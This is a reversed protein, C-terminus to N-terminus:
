TELTAIVENVLALEDPSFLETHAERVPILDHHVFGLADTRKELRADGCRVLEDRVPRLRRPAPGHPLKQYVAGTIPHGLRRVAAFDAFYLYKNLKTAGATQDHQTRTAVYVVLETLKDEDYPGYTMEDLM